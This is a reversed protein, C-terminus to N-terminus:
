KSCVFSISCYGDFGPLSISSSSAWRSLGGELFLIQDCFFQKRVHDYELAYIYFTLPIEYIGEGLYFVQYIFWQVHCM